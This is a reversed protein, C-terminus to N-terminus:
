LEALFGPRAEAWVDAPCLISRGPFLGSVERPPGELRGGVNVEIAGDRVRVNFRDLGGPSPGGIYLGRRDFAEGHPGVFYGAPCFLVREGIEPRHPSVASLALYARGTRIVFLRQDPVYVIPRVDDTRAVDVWDESQLFGAAVLAIWIGFIIWLARRGRLRTAARDLRM